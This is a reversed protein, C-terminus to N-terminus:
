RGFIMAGLEDGLRETEQPDTYERYRRLMEELHQKKKHEAELGARLLQVVARNLSIDNQEARANIESYIEPPLAVSLRGSPAEKATTPM